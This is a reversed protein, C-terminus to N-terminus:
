ESEIRVVNVNILHSYPLFPSRLFAAAGAIPDGGIM